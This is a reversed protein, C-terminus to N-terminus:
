VSEYGPLPNARHALLHSVASTLQFLTAVWCLYFSWEYNFSGTNVMFCTEGTYISMGIILFIAAAFETISAMLPATFKGVSFNNFSLCSSLIGFTLCATSIILLARTAEIYEAGPLKICDGKSCIQWLGEHTLGTGFDVLWYDTLIGVLLFVLSLCSGLLGVVNNCLM